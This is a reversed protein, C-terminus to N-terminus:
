PKRRSAAQEVAAVYDRWLPEPDVPRVGGRLRELVGPEYLRGIARALDGADDPACLLGNVDDTVADAIAGARTAIVPLGFDFAILANQSATGSRYPLVLADAAAFLEPLDGAPVYGGTLEVRDRLGLDSILKLLDDRGDWIEGAITLSVKAAAADLARLLVDVGKYRRVIGFFLLHNRPPQPAAASGAAPAPATHPAHPPLAAVEVPAGTLTAALAAQEASHVVLADARRLLARMLLKDVKSREHPLVNNCLAIVKCGGMRAAKALTLYAPVQVPTYVFLVVADFRQRALRRGCRWWTDPRYWALARRTGPFLPVEPQDVTLQGPYLFAPYQASWSELAVQHGAGALHHAFTTAHQAPGGKYPHAPGVIAIRV